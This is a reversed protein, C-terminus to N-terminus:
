SLIVFYIGCVKEDEIAKRAKAKDQQVIRRLEEEDLEFKRKTGVTVATEAAADESGGTNKSAKVGRRAGTIDFGAQTLEFNRVARDQDEQDEAAKSRANELDADRRAKEARKIEKKQALINSLACEHCFIDGRRCCVPDRAIELCM